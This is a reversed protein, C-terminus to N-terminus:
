QEMRSNSKRPTSLACLLSPHGELILYAYNYYMDWLGCSEKFSKQTHAVFAGEVFLM